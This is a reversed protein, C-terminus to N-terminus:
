LEERILADTLAARLVVDEEDPSRGAGVLVLAAWADDDNPHNRGRLVAVVGSMEDVHDPRQLAADLMGTLSKISGQDAQARYAVSCWRRGLASLRYSPWSVVRIQKPGVKMVVPEHQQKLLGARWMSHAESTSTDIALFPLPERPQRIWTLLTEIPIEGDVFTDDFSPACMKVLWSLIAAARNPSQKSM